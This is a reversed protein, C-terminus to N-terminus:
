LFLIELKDEQHQGPRPVASIKECFADFCRELRGPERGGQAQPLVRCLQLLEYSCHLLQTQAM